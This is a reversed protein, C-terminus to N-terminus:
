NIEKKLEEVCCRSAYLARGLVADRPIVLLLFYEQTVPLIL